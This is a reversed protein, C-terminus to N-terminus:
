ASRLRRVAAGVHSVVRDLPRLLCLSPTRETHDVDLGLLKAAPAAFHGIPATGHGMNGVGLFGAEM